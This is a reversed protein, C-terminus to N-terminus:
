VGLVRRVYRLFESAEEASMGLTDYSFFIGLGSDTPYSRLVMEMMAPAVGRQAPLNTIRYMGMDAEGEANPRQLPASTSDRVWKGTTVEGAMFLATYSGQAVLEDHLPLFTINLAMALGRDLGDAVDRAVQALDCEESARVRIPISSAVCNVYNELRRDHRGSHPVAMIVEDVDGFKCIAKGFAAIILQSVTCGAEQSAMKLREYQEADLIQNDFCAIGADVGYHNPKLGKAARGLKPVPPPDYFLERIYRAREEAKEATFYFEDYYQETTIGVPSLPLGIFAKVVEELILGLSYGDVVIHHAKSVILDGEDGFRLIHVQLPREAVEITQQSITKARDRATAEDLVEEIFVFDEPQQNKELYALWKGEPSQMFRTRLADHRGIVTMVAAQLRRLDMQPRILFEKSITFVSRTLDSSAPNETINIFYKHTVTLPAERDFNPVGDFQSPEELAPEATPLDAWQRVQWEVESIVNDEPLMALLRQLNAVTAELVQRATAEGFVDLDVALRLHLGSSDCTAALQLEQPTVPVADLRSQAEEGSAACDPGLWAFGFQRLDVERGSLLENLERELTTTDVTRHKRVESLRREIVEVLQSDECTIQPLILPFFSDGSTVTNVRTDDRFTFWNDLVISGVGFCEALAKVFAPLLAQGVPEPQYASFKSLHAFAIGCTGRNRGLEVPAWARRRGHLQVRTPADRLVEKWYALDARTKVETESGGPLARVGGDDPDFEDACLANAVLQVSIADAAARHARVELIKTGDSLNKLGFRWLHGEGSLLPLSQESTLVEIQPATKREIRAKNGSFSGVLCIAENSHSFTTLRETLEALGLAHPVRAFAFLQNDHIAAATSMPRRPVELAELQRALPQYEGQTGGSANGGEANQDTAAAAIELKRDLSSAVLAALREITPAQIFQAIPIELDVSAEIRNKLEFASLSDLGLESLKRDEAITAEDVKLVKALDAKIHSALLVEWRDRPLGMLEQQLRSREGAVKNLMLKLRPNKLAGPNARGIATWDLNAFAVTDGNARLLRDLALVAQGAEIPKIGASELYNTLSESRSVFGSGSIAGWAVSVAALGRSKRYASLANLASNAATYNAQGASGVTEAISSMNLFFDLNIDHRLAANHLNIAGGVKPMIVRELTGGDIQSIFADEIVAAGHVIGRLSHEATTLEALLSDVASEDSVDLSVSLVRTGRQEMRAIAEAAEDDPKGTRNALVVTGAGRQSLWDGIVVGFGKLGGTVLYSAELSLEINKGLAVHVNVIPENLDVVVKGIHQAQFLTRMAEATRSVPFYTAPLPQYTGLAVKQEVAALLKQFRKPKDTPLTSLDIVSYANNRYLSGLGIPKDEALDRKGIEVMRGFPALCELSKDIGVGSLANLVVDVGGGSTHELLQESFELSRSNMVAEVGLAQVYARKTDSGATGFIKSAGLNKAIQIAALGVGGSALHILVSEDEDLLGVDVLAYHATLFAVPMTAAKQLDFDAPLRMVAAAHTKAFRRLFGKGMGMVKDGVSLHTVGPGVMAVTGSFELGLNRWYADEGELEGPLISTAAMIDRFNLGVAAVQVLIEGPGCEPTDVERLVINDISGASTMTVCFNSDETTTDLRRVAPSVDELPKSELRAVLRESGRIVFEREPTDETMADAIATANSLAAADVDILRLDGHQLETALTRGMGLLVSDRLGDIGGVESANALRSSRTVVAIRPMPRSSAVLTECVQGLTTLQRANTMVGDLVSEPVISDSGNLALPAAACVLIGGKRPDRDLFDEILSTAAPLDMAQFPAFNVQEIEAGRRKLESALPAFDDSEGLLLWCSGEINESPSASQRELYEEFISAKAAYGKNIARRTGVVKSNLDEIQVLPEGEPSFIRIRALSPGMGDSTEIIIQKSLPAKLLIKRAGVPLRMLYQTEDEDDAPLLSEPQWNGDDRAAVAISTQIASDLAGPFAFYGNPADDEAEVVAVATIDDLQLSQLLRFEPGYQLGHRETLRYFETRDVPSMGPKVLDTPAATLEYDHKFGYAEARLNWVGDLGRHMTSISIRNSVPDLSTSFVVVDDDTISTAQHLKFDRLEVPGDGHFDRLAAGMMEIYCVAPFLVDGGVTHDALYRFNSITIENSWAPEALFERRGLLPHPTADFLFSDTEEPMVRLHENNWPFRPMETVPGGTRTRLRPVGAVFLEAEAAALTEFDDLTRDLSTVAVVDKGAAQAIGRSLPTLTRHPGLELFANTGLALCLEIGKTFSVPQRLNKWWYDEDFYVELMGTVTSVIPVRGDLPKVSGLETVFWDKVEDLLQSHWAFDMQMRRVHADPYAKAIAEMAAVVAQEEGSITQAVPGNFAGIIVSEFDRLLPSLQEPTLGIAAMAGHASCRKPIQGRLAILRAADELGIYGTSCAAAVEGFSHGTVVDPRLGQREWFEFLAMQTSFIAAQTVEASNIRSEMEPKLMEDITSWGVLPRLVEDVREVSARFSKDELLLRRAMAWWQGGQGSFVLGLKRQSSRGVVVNAAVSASNDAIDNYAVQQLAERLAERDSQVIIGARYTFHDRRTWLQDALDAIEVGKLAGDHALGEALSKAWSALGQESPASIPFVIPKDVPLTKVDFHSPSPSATWQEILVSANTGGFGFSNVATLVSADERGLPTLETPVIMSFADFPIDPNPTEFNRNPLAARRQAILLAKIFGAIGAAAELHGINPKFSGIQLPQKRAYSGFVRGIATAEIPDGVPTGTGHAEVYNVDTPDVSATEMLSQLMAEQADGNPATITSTYGDQNVMTQRIIGYIRDGDAIARDLPKLLVMGCGEGRIFGDARNDFTYIEGSKSLMNAGSFAVFPGPDLMCNVGGAFAMECTGMSLHRVAQDVAVLASSCATDIALSPGNLGFRHSIRNAAISFAAGTGAFIDSTAFRGQRQLYAFDVTSIGLFVGTRSRRLDEITVCADQTAEYAVQLAIRQQPDMSTAERPSMDFFSPDFAFVDDAMFGGFRSYTRSRANPNADFFSDMNWRTKPVEVIGTKKAKLFDWYSDATSIGGPLRCGIGIVAVPVTAGKSVITETEFEGRANM